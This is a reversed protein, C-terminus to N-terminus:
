AMTKVFEAFYPLTFWLQGYGETYLIGKNLLRQRYVSFKNNKLDTLEQITNVRNITNVAMAILIKKEM